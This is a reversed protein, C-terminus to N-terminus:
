DYYKACGIGILVAVLAMFYFMMCAQKDYTVASIISLGTLTGAMIGSLFITLKKM